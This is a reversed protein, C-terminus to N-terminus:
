GYVARRFGMNRVDMSKMWKRSDKDEAVLFVVRGHGSGRVPITRGQILLSDVHGDQRTVKENDTDNATANNKADHNANPRIDPWDRWIEIVDWRQSAIPPPPRSPSLADYNDDLTYIYKDNTDLDNHHTDHPSLPPPSPPEPVTARSLNNNNNVNPPPVLPSTPPTWPPCNSTNHHPTSSPTAPPTIPPYPPAAAALAMEVIRIAQAIDGVEFVAIRPHLISTISLLRNYFIDSPLVAEFESRLEFESTPACSITCASKSISASSSAHVFSFPSPVLALKPEFNRVSRGTDVEFGRQSIYPPNSVLIDIRPLIKNAQGNSNGNGREIKNESTYGKSKSAKTDGRLQEKEDPIQGQTAVLISDTSNSLRSISTMTRASKSGPRADDTIGVPSSPSLSYTAKEGDMSADADADADLYLYSMWDDSFIDARQYTIDQKLEEIVHGPVSGKEDGDGRAHLIHANHLVNKSALRVARPEVDFGFVRPKCQVERKREGESGGHRRGYTRSQARAFALGRAYLSLSICGTGSCLDLIRLGEGKEKRKEQRWESKAGAGQKEKGGGGDKEQVPTYRVRSFPTTSSFIMDALFSVWAETEPRPILVGKECLIDLDGFPQSGLVYQLPEGAGRRAVLCAVKNEYDDDYGEKGM